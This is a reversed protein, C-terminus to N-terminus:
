EMPIDERDSALAELFIGMFGLQVAVAQDPLM